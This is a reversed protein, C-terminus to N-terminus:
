STLVIAIGQPVCAACRQALAARLAIALIRVALEPLDDIGGDLIGAADIAATM